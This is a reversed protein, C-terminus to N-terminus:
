LLAVFEEMTMGLDKTVIARLLGRPLDRGAHVPVTTKRGDAHEFRHHSGRVRTEQFGLKGIVAFLRRAPIVPVASM